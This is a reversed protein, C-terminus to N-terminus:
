TEQKESSKDKGFSNELWTNAWKDVIKDVLSSKYAILIKEIRDEQKLTYINEYGVKTKEIVGRQVLYKLYFSVTSPSLKLEEIIHQSKAKKSLLIILVIDLLRKHRLLSLVKEDEPGLLKCYYRTVHESREEILLSRRIMYNLHHQLSALPIDVKRQLERLHLGPNKKISEYITRRRQNELIEEKFM